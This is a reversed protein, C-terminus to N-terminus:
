SETPAPNSEPLSALAKLGRERLLESLLKTGDSYGQLYAMEAILKERDTKPGITM